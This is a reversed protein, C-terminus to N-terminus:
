GLRKKNKCSTVIASILWQMLSWIMGLVGILLILWLILGGLLWFRLHIPGLIWWMGVDLFTVM